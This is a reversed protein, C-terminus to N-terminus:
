DHSSDKRQVVPIGYKKAAKYADSGRWACVTIGNQKLYTESGLATNGRQMGIDILSKPLWVSKLDAINEYPNGFIHAIGEPLVLVGDTAGYFCNYLYLGDKNLLLGDKVSYKPNQPSMSVNNLSYCATVAYSCKEVSAPFSLSELATCGDFSNYEITRVGEPVIVYKLATCDLFAGNEITEVGSPITYLPNKSGDFYYLFSKGDASLLANNRCVYAPNDSVITLGALRSCNVFAKSSLDTLSKSILVSELMSCHSFAYDDITTVGNPIVIRKLAFCSDFVSGELVSISGTLVVKELSECHYFAASGLSSLHRPLELEKLAACNWFASAGISALGDPLSVSELAACNRFAYDQIVTVHVPLSVSKLKPCFEFASEGIMQLSNPLDISELATCEAFAKKEISVVGEPLAIHKLASCKQFTSDAIEQLSNPLVINKMNYNLWFAHDGIATISNPLTLNVLRYSRLSEIKTVPAGGLRDPVVLTQQYGTYDDIVAGGNELHYDYRESSGTSEYSASASADKLTMHDVDYVVTYTTEGIRITDKSFRYDTEIGDVTCSGNRFFELNAPFSASVTQSDQRWASVYDPYNYRIRYIIVLTLIALLIAGVIGGLIWLIRKKTKKM